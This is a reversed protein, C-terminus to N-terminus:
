LINLLKGFQMLIFEMKMMKVFMQLKNDKVQILKIKLLILLINFYTNMVVVM